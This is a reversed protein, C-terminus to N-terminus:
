RFYNLWAFRERKKLYNQNGQKAYAEREFSIRKYAKNVDEYIIIGRIFEILYIIYFFVILLEQQQEIHIKEHNLIVKGRESDKYKSKLFIFPYLTIGGVNMFFSIRELFKDSYKVIPIKM